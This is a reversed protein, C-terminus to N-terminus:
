RSIPFINAGEGFAYSELFKRMPWVPCIVHFFHLKMEGTSDKPIKVMRPELLIDDRKVENGGSMIQM